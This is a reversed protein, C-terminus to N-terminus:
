YYFIVPQKEPVNVVINGNIIEFPYNESRDHYLVKVRYLSKDRNTPLPYYLTKETKSYFAIRNKDMPCTISNGDMIRIGMFESSFKEPISYDITVSSNDILKM